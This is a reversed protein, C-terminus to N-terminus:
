FNQRLLPTRVKWIARRCSVDMNAGALRRGVVAIEGVGKICCGCFGPGQEYLVQRGAFHHWTARNLVNDAGLPCLVTLSNQVSLDTGRSPEGNQGYHQGEARMASQWIQRGHNSQM